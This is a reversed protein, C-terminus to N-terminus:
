TKGVGLAASISPGYTKALLRPSASVLPERREVYRLWALGVLQAAVLTARLRPLDAGASLSRAPATFSRGILDSLLRRAAEDSGAARLLTEITSAHPQADWSQLFALVLGEGPDERGTSRWSVDERADIPPAISAAFLARKTGFYHHILAQDVGARLAISRVTTADYGRAGFSERAMRLIADRTAPQGPRRGRVARKAM